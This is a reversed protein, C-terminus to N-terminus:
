LDITLGTPPNKEISLKDGNLTYGRILSKGFVMMNSSQNYHLNVGLDRKATDV